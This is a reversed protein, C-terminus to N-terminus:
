KVKVPIGCVTLYVEDSERAIAQNVRGAIDRFVRALVNEPVVGSGLENTVMLVTAETKMIGTMLNEVEKRIEEEVKEFDRFRPNEYDIDPFELFINTIMVTICDLLIGKYRKGEREIVEGLGRYGEYTDWEAPRSERHMKVRHKMEEDFPVATAIYLIDGDLEKALKEALGSKGSRAGGTILISKGM